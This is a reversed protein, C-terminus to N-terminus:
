PLWHMRLLSFISSNEEVTDDVSDGYRICSWLSFVNLNSMWTLSIRVSVSVNFICTFVSPVYCCNVFNLYNYILQLM